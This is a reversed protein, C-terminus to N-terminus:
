WGKPLFSQIWERWGSKAQPEEQLREAVRLGCNPVHFYGVFESCIEFSATEPNTIARGCDDMRDIGGTGNKHSWLGDADQRIFHFDVGPCIRLAVLYHGPRAVPADGIFVMGDAEACRVCEGPTVAGMRAGAALGPVQEGGMFHGYPDNAAYAYCNTAACVYRNDWVDPQYHPPNKM